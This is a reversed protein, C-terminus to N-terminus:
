LGSDHLQGTAKARRRARAEPFVDWIQFWYNCTYPNQIRFWRLSENDMAEVTREERPVISGAFFKRPNTEFWADPFLRRADEITKISEIEERTCFHSPHDM